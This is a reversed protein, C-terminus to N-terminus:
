GMRRKARGLLVFMLNAGASFVEGQNAVIMAEFNKGTEELGAQIMRFHDEGITNMKSHFEVCLVGDGLDVLSAGPNSKVRKQRALVIGPEEFPRYEGCGFDFYTVTSGGQGYLGARGYLSTRGERRMAAINEPLAHGTSKLRDCFDEFGLADWLEFPGLAHAYGWRM